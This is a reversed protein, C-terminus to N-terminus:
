YPSLFGYSDLNQGTNLCKDLLIRFGLLLGDRGCFAMYSSGLLCCMLLLERWDLHNLFSVQDEPAELACGQSFQLRRHMSL